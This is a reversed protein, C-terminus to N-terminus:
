LHRRSQEGDRAEVTVQPPEIRREFHEAVRALLQQRPGPNLEGM